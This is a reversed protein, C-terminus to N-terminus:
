LAPVVSRSAATARASPRAAVPTARRLVTGRWNRQFAQRLVAVHGSRAADTVGRGTVTVVLLNRRNIAAVISAALIGIKADDQLAPSDFALGTIFLSM